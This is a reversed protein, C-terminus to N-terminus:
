HVNTFSVELEINRWLANGFDDTFRTATNRVGLRIVNETHSGDSDTFKLTFAGTTGTLIALMDDPLTDWQMTTNAYKWGIKDAILKGTCTTYEATYVDERELEFNNPAIISNDNVKIKHFRGDLLETEYTLTINGADAWVFCDRLLEIQQGTLQYTQPTALEYVLQVGNMATKFTAADSYDTNKCYVNNNTSYGRMGGHTMSTFAVSQVNYMDSMINTNGNQKGSVPAVFLNSADGSAIWTLSGLDVIARDVTLVGSVLDITGGYTTSPLTTTTTNGNYAHYDHDTSPYNISIDNNYTTGYDNAMAIAIRYCNNPTTFASSSQFNRRSIFADNADYYLINGTGNGMHFYYSTNPRVDIKNVSRIRLNVSIKAGTNMDYGGVEWEEDWVNVGTVYVSVDDWGTIPCINSYPEYTTATSGLEIQPKTLTLTGGSGYNFKVATVNQFAQTTYTTATLGKNGLYTSGNWFELRPNTGTFTGKEYSFIVNQPTDFLVVTPNSVSSCEFVDGNYSGNPLVDVMNLKNKGAGGVWPKTYGHLDQVPNIDVLLERAEAEAGDTIHVISGSITKEDQM